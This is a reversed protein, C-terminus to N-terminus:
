KAKNLSILAPVIMGFLPYAKGSIEMGIYILTASILWILCLLILEKKDM